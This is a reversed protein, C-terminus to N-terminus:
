RCRASCAATMSSEFESLPSSTNVFLVLGVMGLDFATGTLGYVLWGVTV